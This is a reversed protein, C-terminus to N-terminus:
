VLMSLPNELYRRITGLFEAGAAGDIVRHDVSLSANVRTPTEIKGDMVAAVQEAKGVALISAQPPNIIADFADIGFMGLNSLSMAGGTMEAPSLKGDRAKGALAKMEASIEGLPRAALNRLVPTFLGKDTAVAVSIDAEAFKLVRDGAWAANCDPHDRLALACAKLIFDNVSIRADKARGANIESRAALLADMGIAVRLYFHPVTQKSETLRRAITRRVNSVPEEAFPRGEYHRAVDAATASPALQPAPAAPAPAAEAREVDAKVIRGNPGSGKLAALDIGRQEAIRRALPSAFVRGGKGNPKGASKEAQAAPQAPEPAPAPSPAPAAAEVPGDPVAEGEEVLLAIPANVKVGATGEAVLIRGVVGEDVAEVEMTAKDTEIEAIVDGSRVTDGEKVLWRALTGDEMTPSLAPMLINTPM